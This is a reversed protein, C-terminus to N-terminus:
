KLLSEIRERDFGIVINGEIETVPVGYQKSKDVMEQAAESDRSVDIDEFKVKKEKLFEKLRVCYPCHPTSYVKIKKEM